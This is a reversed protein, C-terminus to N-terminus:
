VTFELGTLSESLEWLQRAEEGKGTDRCAMIVQAGKLAIAKTTHYGLGSNAGTVVAIRGQQSTIDVASWEKQKVM